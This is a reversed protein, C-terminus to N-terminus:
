RWLMIIEWFLSWKRPLLQQKIFAAISGGRRGLFIPMVSFSMPALSCNSNLLVGLMSTKRWVSLAKGSDRKRKKPNSVVKLDDGFGLDEEDFPAEAEVSPKGSNNAPPVEVKEPQGQDAGDVRGSGEGVDGQDQSASPTASSNDGGEDDGQILNMLDALTKKGGAMSVVYSRGAERDGIVMRPNLNREGFIVLLIDAINHDEPSLWDYSIKILYDSRAGFSWYTPIRREGETTLWFLQHGEIPRVKFFTSKLVMSPTRLFALSGAVKNLGSLCTGRRRRGKVLLTRSFSFTSSFM